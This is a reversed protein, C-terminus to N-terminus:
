VKYSVSAYLGSQNSPVLKMSKKTKTPVEDLSFCCGMEESQKSDPSRLSYSHSCHTMCSVQKVEQQMGM